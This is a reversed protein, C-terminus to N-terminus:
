VVGGNAVSDTTATWVPALTRVTGATITTEFPNYSARDPGQGPAPWCGSAALALAAVAALRAGRRGRRRRTAPTTDGHM